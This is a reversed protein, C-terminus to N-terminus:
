VCCLTCEASGRCACKMLAHSRTYNSTRGFPMGWPQPVLFAIPLALMGTDYAICCAKHGKFHLEDIYWEILRCLEPERNLFYHCSNCANDYIVRLHHDDPLRTALLEFATSPSEADAMLSSMVPAKCHACWAVQLACVHRSASGDPSVSTYSDLAVDPCSFFLMVVIMM